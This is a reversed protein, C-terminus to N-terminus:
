RYKVGMCHIPDTMRVSLFELTAGAIKLIEGVLVRSSSIAVKELKRAQFIVHLSSGPPRCDMPDCLTLHLKAVLYM